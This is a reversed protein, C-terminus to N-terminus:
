LVASANAAVYLSRCVRFDIKLDRFFHYVTPMSLCCEDVEKLFDLRGLLVIPVKAADRFGDSDHHQATQAPEPVHPLDMMPRFIRTHLFKQLLFELNRM